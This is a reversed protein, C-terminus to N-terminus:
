PLGAESLAPRGSADPEGLRYSDLPFRACLERVEARVALRVAPDLDYSREGQARVGRLVRDVLEACRPMEEPGLGRSALSNTGLRIGSTVTAPRSDGVIRNKNVVIGCEELAKEAIVGTLGCAAVDLVVLHNDTGGSMVRHGRELFSSALARADEVIRGALRRFEPTLLRQFAHAKAAISNLDPAGQFFPFVASQLHQALSRGPVPSPSDHDRGALVLGGRPGYLQKHTCTTTVHALDIPSPHLDAVVLGAVHTIDALLYAGVEDAIARFRAFDLVRSYATTGCVILRPRHELALARVRDFDITGNATLGYGVARFYQGSLSAPAGHTLHGGSDLEMGLLTDGPRLLSCMVLQNATTASHPQVNAYRARFATKAREVALTEIEDIVACGAHFRAGPYGEATVNVATAAECALVSPPVVSSSAVMSLVTAQRDMERVLLQHLDPDSARLVDVGRCIMRELTSDDM